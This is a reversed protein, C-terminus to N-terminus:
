VCCSMIDLIFTLVVARSLVFVRPYAKVYYSVPLLRWDVSVAFASSVPTSRIMLESFAISGM